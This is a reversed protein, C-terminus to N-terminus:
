RTSAAIRDMIREPTIPLERFAHGTADRLAASFEFPRPYV